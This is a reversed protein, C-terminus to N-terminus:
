YIERLFSQNPTFFLLIFVMILLNSNLNVHPKGPPETAFFRGTLAPYTPEIGPVPLDGPPPFPLRSWYEQRPFGMCLPAQRAVTWPTAFLWLRSLSQARMCTGIIITAARQCDAWEAAELTGAWNLIIFDANASVLAWNRSNRRIHAHLRNM